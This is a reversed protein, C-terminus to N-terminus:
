EFEIRVIKRYVGTRKQLVRILRILSMIAETQCREEIDFLESGNDFHVRIRYTKM